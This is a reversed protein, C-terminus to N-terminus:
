LPPCIFSLATAATTTEANSAAPVAVTPALVGGSVSGAPDPPDVSGPLELVLAGVSVEVVATADVTVMETAVSGGGASPVVTPGSVVVGAVVASTVVSTLEVM